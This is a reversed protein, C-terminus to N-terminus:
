KKVSEFLLAQNIGLYKSIAKASSRSINGRNRASSITTLSMNLDISMDITSIGQEKMAEKVLPLGRITKTQAKIM